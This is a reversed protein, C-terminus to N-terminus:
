ILVCTLKFSFKFIDMFSASICTQCLVCSNHQNFSHLSPHSLVLLVHIFHFMSCKCLCIQCPVVALFHGHRTVNSNTLRRNIDKPVFLRNWMRDEDQAYHKYTWGPPLLTCESLLPHSPDAFFCILGFQLCKWCRDLARVLRRAFVSSSCQGEQVTATLSMTATTTRMEHDKLQTHNLGPVGGWRQWVCPPLSLTARSEVFVFMSYM